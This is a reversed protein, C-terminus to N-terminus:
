MRMWRQKLKATMAAGPRYVKGHGWLTVRYHVNLVTSKNGGTLSAMAPESIDLFRNPDMAMVWDAPGFDEVVGSVTKGQYEVDVHTGLPLYPSAITQVSMPAGSATGIGPHWFSSARANEWGSPAVTSGGPDTGDTGTGSGASPATIPYDPDSGPTQGMILERLAETWQRGKIASWLLLSGGALAAVGVGPIGKGSGSMSVGSRILRASTKGQRRTRRASTRSEM